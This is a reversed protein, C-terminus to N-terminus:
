DDHIPNGYWDFGDDEYHIYPFDEFYEEPLDMEYPCEITCTDCVCKEYPCTCEENIELACETCSQEMCNDRPCTFILDSM